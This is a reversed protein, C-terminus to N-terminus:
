WRSRWTWGSCWPPSAEPRAIVFKAGPKASPAAPAQMRGNGDDGNAFSGVDAGCTWTAEDGNRVRQKM